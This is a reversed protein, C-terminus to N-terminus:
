KSEFEKCPHMNYLTEYVKSRVDYYEEPTYKKIRKYYTEAIKKVSSHLVTDTDLPIFYHKCFEATTLWVPEKMVDQVTMIKRNRIYSLVAYYKDGSLKTRWFRDVFIKGQYDKHLERCKQHISCLYFVHETSELSARTMAKKDRLKKANYAKRIPRLIEDYTKRMSIYKEWNDQKKAARVQSYVTNWIAYRENRKLGKAKNVLDKLERRVRNMCYGKELARTMYIFAQKVLSKYNKMEM